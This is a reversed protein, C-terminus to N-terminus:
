DWNREAKQSKPELVNLLVCFAARLQESKLSSLFFLNNVQYRSTAWMICSCLLFFYCVAECESCHSIPFVSLLLYWHPYPYIPVRMCQQHSHFIICGSQFVAQCNKFYKLCLAITKSEAIRCRPIYAWSFHFYTYVSFSVWLLLIRLLWFHFYALHEYVSSYLKVLLPTDM